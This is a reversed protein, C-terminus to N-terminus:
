TGIGIIIGRVATFLCVVFKFWTFELCPAVVYACACPRLTSGSFLLALTHLPLPSHTHPIWRSSVLSWSVEMFPQQEDYLQLDFLM